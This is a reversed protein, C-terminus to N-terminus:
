PRASALERSFNRGNCAGRAADASGDGHFQRYVSGIDGGDINTTKHACGRVCLWGCLLVKLFRGPLHPPKAPLACGDLGVDAPASYSTVPPSLAFSAYCLRQARKLRARM